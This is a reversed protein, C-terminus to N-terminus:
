RKIQKFESSDKWEPFTDEMSLRYGISFLVNLNQVIGSIDWAPTVEDSPSHYRGELDKRKQKALDSTDLYDVGSGAYLAPVGAKVFNFHDSRFFGGSSPHPDPAITKNLKKAAAAAYDDLESQGYGVITIDRTEGGPSLADININAVTQKLPYAPHKAYYESGLLGQEEATWAAFVITREPAKKANMFAQAIEFLGAIGTANDEAGNYISDGNLPTGIGLHDWHGAYIVVEDPRTTGKIKGLVNHSQYQKTTNKIHVSANIQLPVPKFGPTKASEILQDTKGSLQFLQSAMDETIWGEFKPIDAAEQALTMQPGSWGSQVVNWGYSAAGTNHIIMVGAAGQRAAEEYKYTWRGYYTMTEGKFLQKNYYGPDNVMVIVIKDKVDIDAYDNWQYEPAVIGFGAFVFEVNPISIDGAQRSALVYDEALKFSKKGQKGQIAWEKGSQSTVQMLPVEQYFDDGNGAELGLKIFTNKIYQITSDEGASGPLRGQFADSSLKEVYALYAASDIAASAVEADNQKVGQQCSVCLFLCICSLKIINKM